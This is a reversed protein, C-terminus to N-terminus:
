EPSRSVPMRASIFSTGIMPATESYMCAELPVEAGGGVAVEDAPEGVVEAVVALGPLHHDRRHLDLGAGAAVMPQVSSPRFVWWNTVEDDVPTEPCCSASVRWRLHDVAPM